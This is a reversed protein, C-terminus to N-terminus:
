KAIFTILLLITFLISFIIGQFRTIDKAMESPEADYKYMWRRGSMFTKEPHKISYIALIIFGILIIRLLIM